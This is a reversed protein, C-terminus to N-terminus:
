VREFAWITTRTGLLRIPFRELLTLQGPIAARPLQPALLVVRGGTRTVRVMETLVSKLWRDPSGGITFQRGFPLNSVCAATSRPAFPLERADGPHVQGDRANRRAAKVAEPDIDIGRVDWGSVSAESLITGAGCCPDLLPLGPEGALAVMAAAVTPRLAAHREVERGGHQRMTVGTLRVGSVFSGAQYESVWVEIRAPDGVRWRPRDRQIAATCQRRLETRLFAREQQVRAVVRFTMTGSLPGLAEAWISLAQEIREPRWVRGAISRPDDGQARRGRGVEVFLDETLRLGLAAARGPRAAEFTVVDSRGDCGSDRVSVGPLQSLERTVLPALGPIATAFM